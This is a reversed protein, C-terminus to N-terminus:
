HRSRYVPFVVLKRVSNNRYLFLLHYVRLMASPVGHVTTKTVATEVFLAWHVCWNPRHNGVGIQTASALAAARYQCWLSCKTSLPLCSSLLLCIYFHWVSKQSTDGWVVTLTLSPLSDAKTKDLAFLEHFTSIM